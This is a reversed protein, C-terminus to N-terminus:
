KAQKNPIGLLSHVSHEVHLKHGNSNPLSDVYKQHKLAQRQLNVIQNHAHAYERSMGRRLYNIQARQLPIIHKNTEDDVMNQTYHIKYKTDVTPKKQRVIPGKHKGTNLVYSYTGKKPKYGTKKNYEALMKRNAHSLNTNWLDAKADDEGYRRRRVEALYYDGDHIQAKVDHYPIKSKKRRLAQSGASDNGGVRKITEPHKIEHLIMAAMQPNHNPDIDPFTYGRKHAEQRFLLKQKDLAYKYYEDKTMALKPQGIGPIVLVEGPKLKHKKNDFQYIKSVLEKAVCGLDALTSM